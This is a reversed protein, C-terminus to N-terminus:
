RPPSPPAPRALRLPLPPSVRPPPPSLYPRYRGARFSRRVRVTGILGSWRIVGRRRVLGHRPRPGVEPLTQFPQQWAMRTGRASGVQAAVLRGARLVQVDARWPILCLLVVAATGLCGGRAWIARIALGVRDLPVIPALRGPEPLHPCVM